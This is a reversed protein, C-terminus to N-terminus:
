KRTERNLKFRPTDEGEEWNYERYHGRVENVEDGSLSTGIKVQAVFTCGRLADAAREALETMTESAIIPFDDDTVREVIGKLNSLMRRQAAAIDEETKLAGTDRDTARAKIYIRDPLLKRGEIKMGNRDTTPDESGSSEVLVPTFQVYPAGDKTTGVQADTTKALYFDAAVNEVGETSAEIDEFGVVDEM